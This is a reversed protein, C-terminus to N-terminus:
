SEVRERRMGAGVKLMVLLALTFGVLGMLTGVFKHSIEYGTTGYHQISLAIVAIRVQNILMLLVSGILLGTLLRAISFRVSLALLLAGVVILPSILLAVTCEPGVRLGAFPPVSWPFVLVDKAQRLDGGMVLGLWRQGVTTEVIRFFAQQWVILAAGTLLPLALLVRLLRNWAQGRPLAPLDADPNAYRESM